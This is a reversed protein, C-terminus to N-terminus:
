ASTHRVVTQRHRPQATCIRTQCSDTSSTATSHLHTDSLQRDISIRAENQRSMNCMCTSRSGCSVTVGTLYARRHDSIGDSIEMASHTRKRHYSQMNHTQNTKSPSCLQDFCTCQTGMLSYITDCHVQVM